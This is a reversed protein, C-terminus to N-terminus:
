ADDVSMGTLRGLFNRTGPAIQDWELERSALHNVGLGVEERGQGLWQLALFAQPWHGTDHAYGLVMLGPDVRRLQGQQLAARALSEPDPPGEIGSRVLLETAGTLLQFAVETAQTEEADGDLGDSSPDDMDVLATREAFHGAFIHGLEHALTFAVLSPYNSEQGLLIAHRDGVRVTMAHMRKARLPFIRLQVVPIGLSWCFTLLGGLDVTQFSRLIASRVEDIGDVQVPAPSSARVLARGVVTGFSTLADEETQELQSARNKFKAVDHWIFTPQSELLSSPALGLHRAVSYSLEAKASLSASAEESWWEPWAADVADRSLGMGRLKARLEDAELVM